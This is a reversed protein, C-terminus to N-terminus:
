VLIIKYSLLKNDLNWVVYPVEKTYGVQKVCLRGNIVQAYNRPGYNYEWGLYVASDADMLDIIQYSAYEPSYVLAYNFKSLDVAPVKALIYTAQETVNDTELLEPEVREFSPTLTVNKGFTAIKSRAFARKDVISGDVLVEALLVYEGDLPLDANFVIDAKQLSPSYHAYIYGATNSMVAIIYKDEDVELRVGSDFFIIGPAVTVIMEATGINETSCKCGDLTTGAGVVASTLENLESLNYSDKSAFPAVGAGTLCRTIDNIDETGYTSSDVFSYKIAM